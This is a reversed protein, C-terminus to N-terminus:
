GVSVSHCFALAIGFSWSFRLVFLGTLLSALLSRGWLALWLLLAALVLPGLWSPHCGSLRNLLPALLRKLLWLLPNLSLFGLLSRGRHALLLRVLGRLRYLLGGLLLALLELRRARPRLLRRTLEALVWLVWGLLELLRGLLVLLWGLLELLRCRVDLLWDLLELLRTTDLLGLALLGALLHL